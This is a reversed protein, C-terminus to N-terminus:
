EEVKVHAYGSFFKPPPEILNRRKPGRPAFRGRARGKATSPSPVPLPDGGGAILTRPYLGRLRKSFKCAFYHM